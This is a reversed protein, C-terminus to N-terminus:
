FIYGLNPDMGTPLSQGPDSKLRSRSGPRDRGTPFPTSPSFFMEPVIQVAYPTQTVIVYLYYPLSLYLNQCRLLEFTLLDFNKNYM